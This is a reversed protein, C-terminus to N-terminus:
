KTYTIRLRPPHNENVGQAYGYYAQNSSTQYLTVGKATGAKLRNGFSLPLTIWRAQPKGFKWTGLLADNDFSGPASSDNHRGIKIQVGSDFWAHENYLYLEVKRVTAGSLIGTFSGWGTMSSQQGNFSDGDGYYMHDTSRIGSSNFSRSWSATWISTYTKPITVPPNTTGSTGSGTVTLAVQVITGDPRRCRLRGDSLFWVNTTNDNVDPDADLVPIIFGRALGASQEVRM